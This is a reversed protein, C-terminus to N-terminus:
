GLIDPDYKLDSGYGRLWAKLDAWVAEGVRERTIKGYHLRSLVKYRRDLFLSCEMCALAEAFFGYGPDDLVKKDPSVVIEGSGCIRCSLKYPDFGDRWRSDLTRHTRSYIDWRQERIDIEVGEEDFLLNGVGIVYDQHFACEFTHLLKGTPLKPDSLCLDLYDSVVDLERAQEEKDFVLSIDADYAKKYFQRLFPWV